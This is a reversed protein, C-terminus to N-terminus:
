KIGLARQAELLGAGTANRYIKVAEVRLGDNLMAKCRAILDADAPTAAASHTSFKDDM